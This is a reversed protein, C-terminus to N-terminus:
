WERVPVSAHCESDRGRRERHELRDAARRQRRQQKLESQDEQNEIEQDNTRLLLLAFGVLFRQAIELAAIADDCGAADDAVDDM